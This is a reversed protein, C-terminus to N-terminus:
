PGRRLYVSDRDHDFVIAIEGHEILGILAAKLEARTYGEFQPASQFQETFMDLIASLLQKPGEELQGLRDLIHIGTYREM